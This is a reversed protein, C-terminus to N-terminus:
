LYLFIYWKKFIGCILSIMHYNGEELKSWEAHDDRARDMNSRIVSANNWEKKHNYLIYTHM